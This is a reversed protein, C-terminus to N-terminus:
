VKSSLNAETGIGMGSPSSKYQIRYTLVMHRQKWISWPDSDCGPLLSPSTHPLFSLAPSGGCVLLVSLTTNPLFSLTVRAYISDLLYKLIHLDSIFFPFALLLSLIVLLINERKKFQMTELTLSKWSGQQILLCIYETKFIYKCFHFLIWSGLWPSKTSINSIM